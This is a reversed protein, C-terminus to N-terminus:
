IGNSFSEKKNHENIMKEEREREVKKREKKNQKAISDQEIYYKDLLEPNSIHISLNFEELIGAGVTKTEYNSKFVSIKKYPFNWVYIGMDEKMRVEKGYRKIFYSYIGNTSNKYLEYEYDKDYNSDGYNYLKYTHNSYVIFECLLNKYYRPSAISFDIGNVSIIGNTEKKIKECILHYEKPTMGFYFDGMIKDGDRKLLDVSKQFRYISDQVNRLSDAIIQERYYKGEVEIENQRKCKNYEELIVFLIFIFVVSNIITLIKIVNDKIGDRVYFVFSIVAITILIMSFLSYGILLIAFISASSILSPIISKIYKKTISKKKITNNSHCQQKKNRNKDNLIDEESHYKGCNVCSAMDDDNLYNCKNCNWM